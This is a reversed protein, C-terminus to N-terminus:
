QRRGNSAPKCAVVKRYMERYAPALVEWDFRNRISSALEQTRGQVQRRSSAFEHLKGSLAGPASM